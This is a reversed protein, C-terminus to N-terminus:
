EDICFLIPGVGECLYALVQLMDEERISPVNTDHYITCGAPTGTPAKALQLDAMEKLHIAFHHVWLTQIPPKSGRCAGKGLSGIQSMSNVQLDVRNCNVRGLVVPPSMGFATGSHDNIGIEERCETVSHGLSIAVLGLMTSSISSSKELVISLIGSCSEACVEGLLGGGM